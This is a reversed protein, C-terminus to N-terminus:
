LLIGKLLDDGAGRIAEELVWAGDIRWVEGAKVLKARITTRSTVGGKASVVAVEVAAQDNDATTKGITNDVVDPILGGVRSALARLADASPVLVRLSAPVEVLNYVRGFDKKKSAELFQEVAFAPTRPYHVYRWYAYAGAAAAALVVALRIALGVGRV